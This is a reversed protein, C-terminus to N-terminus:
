GRGGAGQAAMRAAAAGPQGVVGPPPGPGPDGGGPPVGGRPGADAPIAFHLECYRDAGRAIERTDMLMGHDRACAKYGAEAATMCEQHRDEADRGATFSTNRTMTLGGDVETTEIGIITGCAITRNIKEYQCRMQDDHSVAYFTGDIWRESTLVLPRCAPPAPDRSFSTIRFQKDQYTGTIDCSTIKMAWTDYPEYILCTGPNCTATYSYEYENEGSGNLLKTIRHDDLWAPGPNMHPLSGRCSMTFRVPSDVPTGNDTIFVRTTTAVIPDACVPQLLFLLVFVTLFFQQQKM